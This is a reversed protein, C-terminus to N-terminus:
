NAELNMVVFSGSHTNALFRVEELLTETTYFYKLETGGDPLIKKIAFNRKKDQVTGIGVRSAETEM